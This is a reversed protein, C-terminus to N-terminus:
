FDHGVVYLVTNYVACDSLYFMYSSVSWLPHHLPTQTLSSTNRIHCLLLLINHWGPNGWWRDSVCHYCCELLIIRFLCPLWPLGPVVWQFQTHLGSYPFSSCDTCAFFTIIVEPFTFGPSHQFDDFVTHHTLDGTSGFMVVINSYQGICWDLLSFKHISLKHLLSSCYVQLKHIKPSNVRCYLTNFTYNKYCLLYM